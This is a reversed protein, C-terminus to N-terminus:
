LTNDITDKKPVWRNFKNPYGLYKVLCMRKGGSTREKLIAQVQFFQGTKPPNTPHLQARYFYGAVKDQQLDVLKYLEPKEAALVREM